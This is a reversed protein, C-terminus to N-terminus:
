MLGSFPIVAKMTFPKKEMNWTHPLDVDQWDEPFAAPLGADKQIFKWGRNFNIVNRM